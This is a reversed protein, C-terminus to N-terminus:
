SAPKGAALLEVQNGDPDKIMLVTYRPNSRPEGLGTFGAATLRAIAAAMDPVSIMLFGGGKALKWHDARVMIVRSGQSPAGWELSAEFDNYKTGARMGLATYFATTRAFDAVGLKVGPMSPMGAEQATAASAGATALALAGARVMMRM